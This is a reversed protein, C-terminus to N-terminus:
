GTPRELGAARATSSSTAAQIPVLGVLAKLIRKKGAGNAGIISVVGGRARQRHRGQHGAVQYYVSIDKMEAFM